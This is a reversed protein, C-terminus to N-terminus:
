GHGGGVLKLRGERHGAFHVVVRDIPAAKSPTCAFSYNEALVGDGAVAEVRITASYTPRRSELRCGCDPRALTM